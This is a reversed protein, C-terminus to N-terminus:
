GCSFIRPNGPVGVVPPFHGMKYGNRKNSTASFFFETLSSAMFPLKKTQMFLERKYLPIRNVDWNEGSLFLNGEVGGGM